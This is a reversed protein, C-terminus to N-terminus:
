EMHTAIYTHKRYPSFPDCPLSPIWPSWPGTPGGPFAPSGPSDPGFPLVPIGPPNPFCPWEPSGPVATLPLFQDKSLAAPCKSVTMDKSERQFLLGSLYDCMCSKIRHVEELSCSSWCPINPRPPRGTAWPKTSGFSLLPHFSGMSLRSVNSWGSSRSERHTLM